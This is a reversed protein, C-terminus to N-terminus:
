IRSQTLSESEDVLGTDRQSSDRVKGREGGIIEPLWNEGEASVFSYFSSEHLQM